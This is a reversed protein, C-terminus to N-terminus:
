IKATKTTSNLQVSEPPYKFKFFHCLKELSVETYNPGLQWKSQLQNLSSVGQLNEADYFMGDIQIAVHERNPTTCLWYKVGAVMKGALIAFEACWGNNVVWGNHLYPDSTFKWSDWVHNITAIEQLIM